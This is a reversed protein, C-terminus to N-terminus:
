PSPRRPLVHLGPWAHDLLGRAAGGPAATWPLGVKAHEEENGFSRAACGAHGRATWRCATGGIAARTKDACDSCCNFEVLDGTRPLPRGIELSRKNLGCKEGM